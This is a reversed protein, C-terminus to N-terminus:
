TRKLHEELLAAHEPTDPFGEYVYLDDLSMKGQNVKNILEIWRRREQQLM